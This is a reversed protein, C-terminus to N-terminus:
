LSRISRELKIAALVDVYATCLLADTSEAAAIMEDLSVPSLVATNIDNDM